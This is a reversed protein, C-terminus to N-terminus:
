KVNIIEGYGKTNGDRFFFVDGKEIFESHYSFKFSVIANSGTRLIKKEGDLIKNINIRATQRILGCHIVPEYNNTITTSHNLVKIKADFNKTVNKKFKENSFILTGKKIQNKTFIDKGIFKLAICGIEKNNIKNVNQRINNHLSRARIQYFKNNIPGIWLKQNLEISKGKLTGSVVIGIGKVQFVSDIYLKSGEINNKNWLERPKLKYLIENLIKLNKGTKNSISLVPILNKNNIKFYKNLDLVSKDEKKSFFYPRKNFIPVKLIKRLSNKTKEYINIPCIDIKTIVVIIPIKLYLMIGLHEKTMKNIGMNAGVVVIGYDPYLGTLGLMTTKLYKEHGALDILTLIKKKELDYEIQSYTISSTRGTEREHKNKLIKSRAFGRGDDLINKSLVGILTSKGSDVNGAIAIKICNEIDKEIFEM